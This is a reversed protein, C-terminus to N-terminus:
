LVSNAVFKGWKEIVPKVIVDWEMGALQGRKFRQFEFIERHKKGCDACPAKKVVGIGGDKSISTSIKGDPWGPDLYAGTAVLDALELHILREIGDCSYERARPSEDM